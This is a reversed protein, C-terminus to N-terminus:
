VGLVELLEGINKIVHDPKNILGWDQGGHSVIVSMIGSKRAVELDRWGDGIMVADQKRVGFKKLLHEVAAPSPKIEFEDDRTVITDFHELVGFKKLTREICLRGNCSLVAMLFGGEKLLKLTSTAGPMEAVRGINKLEAREVITRVDSLAGRRGAKVSDVARFINEWLPKFRIEVGRDSFYDHLEQRLKEWDVDLRFLTGDFDFILLRKV